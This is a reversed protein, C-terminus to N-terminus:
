QEANEFTFKYPQAFGTALILLWGFRGNRADLYLYNNTSKAIRFLYDSQKVLLFPIGFYRWRKKSVFYGDKIKGKIIKQQLLVGNQLLQFQLKNHQLMELKVLANNNKITDYAFMAGTPYLAQWLSPKANNNFTDVNYNKYTGNLVTYNTTTSTYIDKRAAFEFSTKCSAFFLIVFCCFLCFSSKM